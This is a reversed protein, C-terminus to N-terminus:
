LGSGPHNIEGNAVERMLVLLEPPAQMPSCAKDGDIFFIVGGAKGQIEVLVAKDGYPLGPPTAPNMTYIGRLFEWQQATLERWTGSSALVAERPVSVDICNDGGYSIQPFAALAALSALIAKISM